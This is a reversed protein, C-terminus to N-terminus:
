FLTNTKPKDIKQEHTMESKGLAKKLNVKISLTKDFLLCFM